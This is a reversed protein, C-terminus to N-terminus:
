NEFLELWSVPMTKIAAIRTKPKFNKETNKPFISKIQNKAPKIQVCRECQQSGFFKESRNNREVEHDLISKLLM